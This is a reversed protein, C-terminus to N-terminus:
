VAWSIHIKYDYIANLKTSYEVKCFPVYKVNVKIKYKFSIIFASILVSALVTM